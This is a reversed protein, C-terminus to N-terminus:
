RFPQLDFDTLVPLFSYPDYTSFTHGTDDTVELIYKFFDSRGELLVEFFGKEDVLDM